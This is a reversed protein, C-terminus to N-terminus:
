AKPKMEKRGTYYNLYKVWVEGDSALKEQNVQLKDLGRPSPNSRGSLDKKRGDKSFSSNHCPCLFADTDIDFAVTCGAHPCTAHLALVEARGAEGKQQSLFIAGIAQGPIFNWADVRDAVIEFRRPMGNEPIAELLAVFYENNAEADNNDAQFNLPPQKKQFPTLLFTYLGVALPVIGVIGGAVIAILAWFFNRRGGVQSGGSTGADPPGPSVQEQDGAPKNGAAGQEDVAAPDTPKEVM